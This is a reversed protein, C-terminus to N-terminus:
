IGVTGSLNQKEKVPLEKKQVSSIIPNVSRYFPKNIQALLSVSSNIQADHPGRCEFTEYNEKIQSYGM